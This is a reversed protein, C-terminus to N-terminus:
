KAIELRFACAVSVDIKALGDGGSDNGPRAHLDGSSRHIDGAGIGNEIVCPLNLRVQRFAHLFYITNFTSAFGHAFLDTVSDIPDLNIGVARVEETWISH